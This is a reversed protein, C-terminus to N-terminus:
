TLVVAGPVFGLEEISKTLTSKRRPATLEEVRSNIKLKKLRQTVEFAQAFTEFAAADNQFDETETVSGDSHLQKFFTNLSLRVYYCRMIVPDLDNKHQEFTSLLIDKVEVVDSWNIPVRPRVTDQLYTMLDIVGLFQKAEDNSEFERSGAILQSVQQQSLRRSTMPPVALQSFASATCNRERLGNRFKINDQTAMVRFETVIEVGDDLDYFNRCIM